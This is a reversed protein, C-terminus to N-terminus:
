DSRQNANLCGHASYALGYSPRQHTKSSPHPLHTGRITLFNFRGFSHAQASIAPLLASKPQGLKICRSTRRGTAASSSRAPAAHVHITGALILHRTSSDCDKGRHVLPSGTPMSTALRPPSGTLLLRIAHLPIM